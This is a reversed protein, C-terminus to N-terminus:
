RRTVEQGMGLLYRRANPSPRRADEALERLVEILDAQYGREGWLLDLAVPDLAREAEPREDALLIWGRLARIAAKHTEMRQFADKWLEVVRRRLEIDQAALRLLTPVADNGDAGANLVDVDAAGLMFLFVWLAPEGAEPPDDVAAWEAIADLVTAEQGADCLSALSRSAVWAHHPAEEVVLRLDRLAFRPWRQGVGFGYAVTATWAQRSGPDRQIWQHLLARVQRALDRDGAVVDLAVAASIRAERREATAWELLLRNHLYPLDKRCLAGAAAAARGHVDFTSHHGLEGLWDLLTGRVADHGVWVHELVELQLRPDELELLEVPCPGLSTAQMRPVIRAGVDEVLQHRSSSLGWGPSPPPQDDDPPEVITRLRDAADAVEHYSAGNLVAAAVMLCREPLEPHREFWEAVRRGLLHTSKAEAETTDALGEAVMALVEGVQDLHGPLPKGDLERRVWPAELLGHPLEAGDLRWRLNRRLVAEPDPPEQCDVLYGGLEIRPIPTRSDVTIVLYGNGLDRCLARLVPLRLTGATEPSLSDLLYRGGPRDDARLFGEPLDHLPVSSGLAYVEPAPGGEERGVQSLLWLALSSKGWHPRGRLVLVRQERLVRMAQDAVTPAVLVAEVKDLLGPEVIGVAIRGGGGSTAVIQTGVVYNDHGHLAVAGYNTGGAIAGDVRMGTKATGGLFPEAVGKVQDFGPISSQQDQDGQDTRAGQGSEARQGSGDEREGGAAAPESPSEPPAPAGGAPGKGAPPTGSRQEAWGHGPAAPAPASGAAAQEAM